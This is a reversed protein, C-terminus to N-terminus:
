CTRAGQRGAAIGAPAGGDGGGVVVVDYEGFVPIGYTNETM